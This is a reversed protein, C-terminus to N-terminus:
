KSKLLQERELRVFVVSANRRHITEYQDWREFRPLVTRDAVESLPAGSELLEILRAELRTLYLEVTDIAEPGAAPGHGPVIRRPALRRFEALAAKWGAFDSDQVDPIREHDILGGAFLVGSGPDFVAIDGPGSSHGFYLIRVPRGIADVVHSADFEQDPKFMATGRMEDDGLVRVLTKLCTECRAAMLGAAARHMHIPIGRERYAMAGFLFEQRTHTIFALKVPKSTVRAIARLLAEGHRYSTGTDIAVVGSEGVIFGANGVRGLTTEDLEGPVGQMVYVGPAVQVAAPEVTPAASPPSAACGGLALAAALLWAAAGPARPGARRGAAGSSLRASTGDIRRWPLRAHLFL